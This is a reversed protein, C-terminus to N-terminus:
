APSPWAVRHDQESGGSGARVFSIPSSRAERMHTISVRQDRRRCLRPEVSARESSESGAIWPTLGIIIEDKLLPETKGASSRIPRREAAPKTAVRDVASTVSAEDTVDLAVDPDIPAMPLAEDVLTRLRTPFDGSM